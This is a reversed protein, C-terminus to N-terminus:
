GVRPIKALIASEDLDQEDRTNFRAHFHHVSEITRAFFDAHVPLM